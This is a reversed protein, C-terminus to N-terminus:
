QDLGLDQIFRSEPVIREIPIGFLGAIMHRLQLLAEEYSLPTATRARLECLLRALTDVTETNGAREDPISVGFHKEAALVLEITDLGM